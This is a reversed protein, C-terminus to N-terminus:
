RCAYKVARDVVSGCNSVVSTKPFKNSHGQAQGEYGSRYGKFVNRGFLFSSEIEFSEFTITNCVSM